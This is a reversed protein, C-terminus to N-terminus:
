IYIPITFFFSSGVGHESIVWIRGHCYEVFERCIKLGLGTGTEDETGKKHFNVDIRFLKDIEENRLGIGADKVCFVLENEFHSVIVEVKSKRPSFKVANTFLNRLVTSVLNEDAYGNKHTHFIQIIEIEKNKALKLVTELSLDIIYRPEIRVPSNKIQGSQTRTWELLNQLLNFANKSSINIDNIIDKKEADDIHYYSEYLYGSMGMIGNFPNKLDHALISFFKDKSQNLEKLKLESNEINKKENLINGRNVYLYIIGIMALLLIILNIIFIQDNWDKTKNLMDDTCLSFVFIKRDIGSYNLKSFSLAKPNKPSNLYISFNEETNDKSANDILTTLHNRDKEHLEFGINQELNQIYIRNEAIPTFSSVEKGNMSDTSAQETAYILFGINNKPLNDSLLKKFLLLDVGMEVFAIPNQNKDSFIPFVFKYENQKNSFTSGNLSITEFNKPLSKLQEPNCIVCNGNEIDIMFFKGSNKLLFSLSSFGIKNLNKYHPLTQKNLDSQIKVFELADVASTSKLLNIMLSDRIMVSYMLSASKRFSSLINNKQLSLNESFFELRSQQTQITDKKIFYKLFGILLITVFLISLINFIKKRMSDNKVGLLKCIIEQNCISLLSM